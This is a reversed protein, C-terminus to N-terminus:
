AFAPVVERVFLELSARDWFYLTVQRVGSDVLPRLAAIADDPTPGIVWDFEGAYAGSPDKAPDTFTLPM